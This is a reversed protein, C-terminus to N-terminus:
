AAEPVVDALWFYAAWSGDLAKVSVERPHYSSFRVFGQVIGVDGMHKNHDIDGARLQVRDGPQLQRTMVAVEGGAAGDFVLGNGM